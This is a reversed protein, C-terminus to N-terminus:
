LRELTFSIDLDCLLANFWQHLHQGKDAPKVTWVELYKIQFNIWRDHDIQQNFKLVVKVFDSM